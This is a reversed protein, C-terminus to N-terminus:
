GNVKKRESIFIESKLVQELDKINKCDEISSINKVKKFKRIREEAEKSKRCFEGIIWCLESQYNKPM